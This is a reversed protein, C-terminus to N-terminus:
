GGRGEGEWGGVERDVGKVERRGGRGPRREGIGVGRVQMEGVQEGRRDRGQYQKWLRGCPVM